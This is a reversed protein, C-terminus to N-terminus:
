GEGRRRRLPRRAKRAADARREANVARSTAKDKWGPRDNM